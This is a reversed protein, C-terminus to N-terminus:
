AHSAEMQEIVKYIPVEIREQDCLGYEALAQETFQFRLGAQPLGAIRAAKALNTKIRTMFGNLCASETRQDLKKLDAAFFEQLQGLADIADSVAKGYVDGDFLGEIMELAGNVDKCFEDVLPTIIRKSYPSEGYLEVLERLKGFSEKSENLADIFQRRKEGQQYHEIARAVQEASYTEPVLLGAVVQRAQMWGANDSGNPQQSPKRSQTSGKKATM